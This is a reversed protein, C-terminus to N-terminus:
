RIAQWHRQRIGRCAIMVSPPRRGKRQEYRLNRFRKILQLAVIVPPKLYAPIRAPVDEIEADKTLVSDMARSRAEFFKEFAMARPAATNFWEAFGYPNAVIRDGPLGPEEPRHHFIHSVRPDRGPILEAPTLDVHMKAYDVTVCRTNRHTVLHYRSGKEGKISRYLLDLAQQPTTGPPLELQAIVDIDVEDRRLCSAITANIAMSGQAYVIRVRGALESGERDLWTALTEVREVALRYNSPSLQIRIAIDALLVDRVDDILEHPQRM